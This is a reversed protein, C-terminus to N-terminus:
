KILSYLDEAIFDLPPKWAEGQERTSVGSLVLAVPCEDLQGGAIDTELRDGVVLTEGKATCLRERALEFLAPAPKGAYVPQVGTATIIVSAWAGAGPIEGRTTPFSKDPNTVFFPVGRRVLLAAESMKQYNIQRDVGMVVAQAKGAEELSMPTFNKDRLAALLGTEGIVFIPSGAPLFQSLLHAAVLSSTVVQWQEAIVGFKALREIYMEPTLTGNNTAFAVKLGKTRIHDFVASLNGIPVEAKWLVGDM